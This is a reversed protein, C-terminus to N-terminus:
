LLDAFTEIALAANEAGSGTETARLVPIGLGDLMRKYAPFLYDYPECYKQTLFIVGQVQKKLLEDRDAKLIEAFVDQSPSPLATLLSKAINEYIDGQLSVEPTFILRRSEPLRDGVINLGAAEIQRVLETRAQTSGVVFVRTGNPCPSGPLSIPVAQDRLPKQLLIHIMELYASYSMEPLNEYLERLARNRTNVFESREVVDTIKVGYHNEIATQYARVSEALYAVAETDRRAPIHFFHLFKGSSELYNGVTRCSDCTRPFVAGDATGDELMRAIFELAYECYHSIRQKGAYGFFRETDCIQEPILTSLSLIHM